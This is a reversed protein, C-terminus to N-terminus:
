EIKKKDYSEKYKLYENMLETMLYTQIITTILLLYLIQEISM